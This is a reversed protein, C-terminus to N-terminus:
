RILSQDIGLEFIKYGEFYLLRKCGYAPTFGELTGEKINCSACLDQERAETTSLSSCGLSSLYGRPGECSRLWQVSHGAISRHRAGSM